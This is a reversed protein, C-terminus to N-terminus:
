CTPLCAYGQGIYVFSLFCVCMCVPSSPNLTLQYFINQHQTLVKKGLLTDKRRSNQKTENEAACGPGTLPAVAQSPFDLREERQGRGGVGRSPCRSTGLGAGPDGGLHSHRFCRGM